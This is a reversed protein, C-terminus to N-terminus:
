EFQGRDQQLEVARNRILFGGFDHCAELADQRTAFEIIGYAEDHKAIPLVDTYIVNCSGAFLDKLDDRTVDLALNRAFLRNNREETQLAPKAAPKEAAPGPLQRYSQM